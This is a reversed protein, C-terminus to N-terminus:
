LHYEGGQYLTVIDCRLGDKACENQLRTSEATRAGRAARDDSGPKVAAQVRATVDETSMLVNVEYGPCAPEKDRAAALFGNTAYDKEATSVNQICALCVHHNTLMLGDPSVFSGSGGDMFRVSALRVKELWQATPTFGYRQQLLETPPHDFTWMGEDSRVLPAALLCVLVALAPPRRM